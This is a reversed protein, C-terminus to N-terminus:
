ARGGVSCICFDKCQENTRKVLNLVNYNGNRWQEALDSALLKGMTETKVYHRSLVRNKGKAGNISKVVVENTYPRFGIQIVGNM